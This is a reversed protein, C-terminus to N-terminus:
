KTNLLQRGKYLYEVGSWVTAVLAAWLVYGGISDIKMSIVTTLPVMPIGSSAQFMNEDSMCTFVQGLLNLLIASMQLITKLKGSLGAPIVVGESAAVGRLGTIAFERALFVVLLWAPMWGAQVFLAFASMTLVKDALPDMLKGFNTILNRKRAIYGDLADTLCAIGFVLFACATPWFSREIEAMDGAWRWGMSRHFLVIFVPVLAMRLVTLKNPLNM